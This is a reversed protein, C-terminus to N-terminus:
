RLVAGRLSPRRSRFDASMFLLPMDRRVREDRGLLDGVLADTQSPAGQSDALLRHLVVQLLDPPLRGLDRGDYASGAALRGRERLELM